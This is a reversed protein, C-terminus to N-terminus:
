VGGSTELDIVRGVRARRVIRAAAVATTSRATGAYAWVGVVGTAVGTAVTCMLKTFASSPSTIRESAAATPTLTTSVSTGDRRMVNWVGSGTGAGCAPATSSPM